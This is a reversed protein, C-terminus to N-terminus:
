RRASRRAPALGKALRRVRARAEAYTLRTAGGVIFERAPQRAAMEDLLDALTRSEPCAVDRM